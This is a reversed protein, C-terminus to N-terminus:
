AKKKWQGGASQQWFTTPHGGAVSAEWRERANLIATPSDEFIDICREFHTIDTARINETLVLMKAANPIESGTTLYIPQQDPRQDQTTGHPLFSGQDYSWLATNLTNLYESTATRVIVRLKQSLARELLKGLALEVPWKCLHYFAVETRQSMSTRDLNM